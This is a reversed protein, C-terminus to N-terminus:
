QSFLDVTLDDVLIVGKGRYWFYVQVVDEGEPAPPIRYDISVRNWKGSVPREKEIEAAFYKFNTGKHNCTAVLSCKALSDPGEFWVYGTARLWLERGAPLDKRLIWLGPSFPADPTLRYSQRSKHGRTALHQAPDAADAGEFDHFALRTRKLSATDPISEREAPPEEKPLEKSRADRWQNWAVFIGLLVLAILLPLFRYKGPTTHPEPM